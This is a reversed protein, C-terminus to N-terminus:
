RIRIFYRYGIPSQEVIERKDQTVYLFDYDSPSYGNYKNPYWMRYIMTGNDRAEYQYRDHLRNIGDVIKDSGDAESEWIINGNFSFYTTGSRESCNGYNDCYQYCRYKYTFTSSNGFQDGSVNKSTTFSFLTLSMVILGLIISNLLVSKRKM